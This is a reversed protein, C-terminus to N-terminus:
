GLRGNRELDQRTRSYVLQVYDIMLSFCLAPMIKPNLGKHQVV